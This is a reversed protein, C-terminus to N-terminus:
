VGLLLAAGASTVWALGYPMLFWIVAIWPRWRQHRRWKDYTIWVSMFMAGMSIVAPVIWFALQMGESCIWASEGAECRPGGMFRSILAIALAFGLTLAITGFFFVFTNRTSRNNRELRLLPDEIYDDETLPRTYGGGHVEDDNPTYM